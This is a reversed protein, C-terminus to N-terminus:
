IFFKIVLKTGAIKLYRETKKQLYDIHVFGSLNDKFEIFINAATEANIKLYNM